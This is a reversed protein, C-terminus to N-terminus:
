DGKAIQRYMELAQKSISVALREKKNSRRLQGVLNMFEKVDDVSPIGFDGDIEEFTRCVDEDDHGFGCGLAFNVAEKTHEWYVKLLHDMM